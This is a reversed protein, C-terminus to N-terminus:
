GPWLFRLRYRERWAARYALLLVLGLIADVVAGGLLVLEMNVDGDFIPRSGHAPILYLLQVVVSLFLGAVIPTVLPMNKRLRAAAYGALMALAACLVVSNTVFPLEISFQDTSDILPGAGFALGSLAFLAALVILLVRLRVEAATLPTPEEPGPPAAPADRLTLVFVVGIVLTILGDLVIAGWLVDAISAHGLWLDVTRHTDAFILMVVMATVSVLHAALVILVVPRRGHINGAAYLCALGLETVKVVSNSVFPLERFFGGIFGGVLYVLAAFVLGAGVLRLLARLTLEAQTLPPAV